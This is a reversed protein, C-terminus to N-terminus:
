EDDTPTFVEPTYRRWAELLGCGPKDCGKKGCTLEYGAVPPTGPAWRRRHTHLGYAKLLGQLDPQTLPLQQTGWAKWPSEPLARLRECLLSSAGGAQNAVDGRTVAYLDVLLRHRVTDDDNVADDCLVRCAQRGREAWAEGALDAVAVLPEWKDANRDQVPMPPELLRLTAVHSSVWQGLRQGLAKLRPEDRRIRYQAVTEAATRRHMWIVLSRDEITDPLAGIGALAAMAFTPLQDLQRNMPDWRTYNRGRQFGANLIGRLDENRDANKGRTFITDAEDILLTPPTLGISHALAAVSVNVTVMPDHSLCEILDLVRSKGCQKVPSRLQLRTATQWADLAHTAAVWLTIATVYEPRGFVAYRTLEAGVEDLLAAGAAAEDAALPLPVVALRPPSASGNRGVPPPPSPSLPSPPSTAPGNGNPGPQAPEFLHTFDPLGAAVDDTM